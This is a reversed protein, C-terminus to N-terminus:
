SLRGCNTGDSLLGDNDGIWFLFKDDGPIYDPSGNAQIRSVVGYLTTDEAVYEVVEGSVVEEASTITWTAINNLGDDDVDLFHSIRVNDGVWLERDKADLRFTCERPVDAYRSIIKSTTNLALAGSGLWRSFINKISPTGFQEDTESPLNAVAKTSEFNEPRLPLVPSRLSYYLNVRSIRHRPKDVIRFSNAVINNEDTILVPEDTIGRVARMKVLAEREDWWLMFGCQEQLESILTTVSVPESLVVDLDYASLFDETETKFSGLLDLQGFSMGGEDVLLRRVIEDVNASTFRICRQVTDEPDHEAAITGDSGRESVNFLLGDTNETISSYRILEDNIRVTGSTDYDSVQAGSVTFATESASISVLGAIEGPSTAPAEAKRDEIQSLIDKGTLAVGGTQPGNTGTLVYQRRIMDSLSQGAYGDYKRMVMNYRFKNRVLWKTWFTAREMPDHQRTTLYPDVIRDTHPHDTFSFSARARNGLGKSNPNSGSLNIKTPAGTARKLYPFVYAADPIDRAALEGNSFLLNLHFENETEPARTNFYVRLEDILGNFDASTEGAHGSGYEFGVGGFNQDTWRAPPSTPTDEGLLVLTREVSDWVWLRLRYDEMRVEGIITLAKGLYPAVPASTYGLAANPDSVSTDGARFVLNNSSVGLFLGQSGSTEWIVGEASASPFRVDAAFYLDQDREATEIEVTEYQAYRDVVFLNAEPTEAYGNPYDCSGRTNYCESGVQDLPNLATIDVSYVEIKTGSATGFDFRIQDVLDSAWDTNYNASDRADFVAVFEDGDSLATIDSINVAQMSRAAAYGGATSTYYADASAVSSNARGRVILYTYVDGDFGNPDVASQFYPNNGTSEYLVGNAGLESLSVNSGTWGGLGGDEWGTSISAYTKGNGARCRGKGWVNTCLPQILEAVQVPERGVTTETM